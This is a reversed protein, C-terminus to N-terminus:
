HKLLEAPTIKILKKMGFLSYICVFLLSMGSLLLLPITPYELKFFSIDKIFYPTVNVFIATIGLSFACALLSVVIWDFWLTLAVHKNTAGLSKLIAIEKRRELVVIKSFSALMSISVFVMIFGIVILTLKFYSTQQAVNNKLSELRLSCTFNEEKDIREKIESVNITKSAYMELVTPNIEKLDALLEGSIRFEKQESEYVGKIYVEHAGNHRLVVKTDLLEEFADELNESSIKLGELVYPVFESSIMIENKNEPIEGLVVVEDGQIQKMPSYAGGTSVNAMSSTLEEKYRRLEIRNYLSNSLENEYIEKIKEASVFTYIKDFPNITKNIGVIKCMISKESRGDSILIEKGICDGEFLCEAVDKALIIEDKDSPFSGEIDYSMIRQEFFHNLNIQKICSEFLQSGNSLIWSDREVYLPVIQEIKYKESIYSIEDKSFPTGKYGLNPTSSYFVSVLDSELYNINVDNSVRSGIQNFDFAMAMMSVSLAVVLAISIIKSRRMRVSNLGVTFIPSFTKKLTRLNNKENSIFKPEFSATIRKDDVIHGDSLTIIRDAYKCAMEKDHSVVVIYKGEKIKVLQEFVKNANQSDLNGTPEDAIIIKSDKCVSRVIAVRQKEGGSLTEVCQKEDKIDLNELQKHIDPNEKNAYMLGLEVNQRVSLGSILNYDQFVFGVKTARYEDVNSSINEGNFYINGESISDLGSILNLLTTKGAGSSGVIFTVENPNIVLNINHLIKKNGFNKSVNDLKIM